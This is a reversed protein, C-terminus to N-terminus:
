YALRVAPAYNFKAEQADILAGIRFYYKQGAKLAKEASLDLEISYIQSETTVSNITLEKKVMSMPEGVTPQIHIYMGAKKVKYPVTQQLSFTAIVKHNLKEIKANKVRIYPQVKFDLREKGEIKM